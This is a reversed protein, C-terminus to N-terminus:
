HRCSCPSGHVGVCCCVVAGKGTKASTEILVANISKAYVRAKALIAAATGCVCCLLSRVSLLARALRRSSGDTSPLDSKNAAIVM